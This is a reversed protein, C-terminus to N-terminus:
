RISGWCSSPPPTANRSRCTSCCARRRRQRDALRQPRNRRGAPGPELGFLRDVGAHAAPRHRQRRSRARRDLHHLRCRRHGGALVFLARGAFAARLRPRGAGPRRVHDARRGRRRAPEDAVKLDIRDFLVDMTMDTPKNIVVGLVGKDNHECIYVVTGGFIPDTMSPMAILFHNALNLSPALAGAAALGSAGHQAMGPLTLPKGVKSKKM